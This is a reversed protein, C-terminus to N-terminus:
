KIEYLEKLDPRTKENINKKINQVTARIIIEPNDSPKPLKTKHAKVGSEVKAWYGRPPTPIKHRKCLKALGRDSMSYKKSLQLLSKSWVEQYLELRTTKKTSM